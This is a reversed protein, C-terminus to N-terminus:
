SSMQGERPHIVVDMMREMMEEMHGLRVEMQTVKEQIHMAMQCRRRRRREKTIQIYSLYQRNEKELQHILTRIIKTAPHRTSWDRILLGVDIIVIAAGLGVSTFKLTDATAKSIVQIGVTAAGTGKAGIRGTDAIIKAGLSVKTSATVADLTPLFGTAVTNGVNYGIKSINLTGKGINEGVKNLIVIRTVDGYFVRAFAEEETYGKHNVMEEVIRRLDEMFKIFIKKSEEREWLLQNIEDMINQTKKSNRVEAHLAVGAGGLSLVLGTATLALSLGFTASALFIGTISLGSGLVGITTAITKRKNTSFHFEGAEKELQKLNDIIERNIAILGTVCQEFENERVCIASMLRSSPESRESREAPVALETPETPESSAM